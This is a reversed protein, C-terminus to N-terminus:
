AVSRLRDAAIQELGVDNIFFLSSGTIYAFMSSAASCQLHHKASM